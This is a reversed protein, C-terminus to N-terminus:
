AFFSFRLRYNRPDTLFREGLHDAGCPGPHIEKQILESLQAEDVVITAQADMTGKEGDDEVVSVTRDSKAGVPDFGHKGGNV